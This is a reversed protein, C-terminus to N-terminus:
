GRGSSGVSSANPRAAKARRIAGKVGLSVQDSAMAVVLQKVRKFKPTSLVRFEDAGVVDFWVGTLARYKRLELGCNDLVTAAVREDENLTMLGLAACSM